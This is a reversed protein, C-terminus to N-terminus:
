IAVKFNLNSSSSLRSPSFEYHTFSGRGRTAITKAELHFRTGQLLSVQDEAGGYLRQVHLCTQTVSPRLMRLETVCFIGRVGARIHTDVVEVEYSGVPISSKPITPYFVEGRRRAELREESWRRHERSPEPNAALEVAGCGFGARVNGAGYVAKMAWRFAWGKQWAVAHAARGEDEADGSPYGFCVGGEILADVLVDLAGEADLAPTTVALVGLERLSDYTHQM